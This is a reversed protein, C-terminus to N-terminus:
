LVRGGLNNCFCVRNDTEGIEEKRVCLVVELSHMMGVDTLDSQFSDQDTTMMRSGESTETPAVSM